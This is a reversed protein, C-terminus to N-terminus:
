LLHTYSVTKPETLVEFGKERLLDACILGYEVSEDGIIVKRKNAM